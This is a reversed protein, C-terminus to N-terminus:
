FSTSAFRWWDWRDPRLSRSEACAASAMDLDSYNVDGAEFECEEIRLYRALAPDDSRIVEAM